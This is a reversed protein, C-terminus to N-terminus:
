AKLKEAAEILPSDSIELPLDVRGRRRSSEYTAFILETARLAKHTSLLSEQGSELCDIAELVSQVTANSYVPNDGAVINTAKAVITEWNKGPKLLHLENNDCHRAEIIGDSGEARVWFHKFANPGTQMFGEVENEFRVLSVGQYDVPVGFVTKAEGLEFQGLVSNAPTENNLFFFM